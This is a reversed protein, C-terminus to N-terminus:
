PQDRAAKKLDDVRLEMAARTLAEAEFAARQRRQTRARRWAFDLVMGFIVSGILLSTYGDKTIAVFREPAQPDLNSYHFILYNAVFAAVTAPFFLLAGIAVVGFVIITWM